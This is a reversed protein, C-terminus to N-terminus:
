DPHIVVRRDSGTGSSETTVRESEALTIHVVRRESPSMPELDIPRGTRIVRDAVRKSLNVISQRRRENYGEVDIALNARSGIENGVMVRVLLQLARLTEGRRGILLGSDDGEIEVLNRESPAAEAHLRCRAGIEVLIDAIEVQMLHGEKGDQGLGGLAIAAFPIAVHRDHPAIEHEVLHHRVIEDRRFLGFRGLPLAQPQDFLLPRTRGIRPIEELFDAALQDVLEAFGGVIAAVADIRAPQPHAGREIDFQLIGRAVRQPRLKDAIVAIAPKGPRDGREIGVIAIKGRLESRGVDPDVIAVPAHAHHCRRPPDAKGIALFERQRAPRRRELWAIHDGRCPRAPAIRDAANGLNRAREKGFRRLGAPHEGHLAAEVAPEATEVARRLRQPLRPRRDLGEDIGGRQVLSHGRRRLHGVLRETDPLAGIQALFAEAVEAAAPATDMRQAPAEFLAAVQHRDVDGVIGSHVIHDLRDVPEADPGVFGIIGERQARAVGRHRPHDVGIGRQGVPPPLVWARHDIVDLVAVALHDEAGVRAVTRSAVHGFPVPLRHRAEVHRALLHEVRAGRELHDVHQLAHDGATGRDAQAAEVQRQEALGAGGIARGIGPEDAARGFDDGAHVDAEVLRAIQAAPHLAAIGGCGDHFAEDFGSRIAPLGLIEYGRRAHPHDLDVAAAALAHEFSGRRVLGGSRDDPFGELGVGFRRPRCAAIRDGGLAVLNELQYKNQFYTGDLIACLELENSSLAIGALANASLLRALINLYLEDVYPGVRFDGAEGELHDVFQSWLSSALEASSDSERAATVLDRLPKLNAAYAPSELGLDLALNSSFLFRSQERALHARLFLVLREAAEEDGAAADIQAIEKLQIDNPTCSAPDILEDLEVDYAHWLVTDSLVGRVQSLPNTSVSHM